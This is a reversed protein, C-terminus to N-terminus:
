CIRCLKNYFYVNNFCNYKVPHYFKFLNYGIYSGITTAVQMVATLDPLYHISIHDPHDSIRM